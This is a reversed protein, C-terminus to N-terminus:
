GVPDSLRNAFNFSKFIFASFSGRNDSLGDVLVSFQKVGRVESSSDVRAGIRGCGLTAVVGLYSVITLLLPLLVNFTSGPRRAGCDRPLMSVLTTVCSSGTVM